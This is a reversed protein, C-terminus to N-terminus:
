FSESQSAIYTDAEIQIIYETNQSSLVPNKISKKKVCQQCCSEIQDRNAISIYSHPDTKATM